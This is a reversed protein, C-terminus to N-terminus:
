IDIKNTLGMEYGVQCSVLVFGTWSMQVATYISCTSSDKESSQRLFLPAMAAHLQQLTATKRMAGTMVSPSGPQDNSHAEQPANEVDQLKPM